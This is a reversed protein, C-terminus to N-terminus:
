ALVPVGKQLVDTQFIHTIGRNFAPNVTQGVIIAKLSTSLWWASPLTTDTTYTTKSEASRTWRLCTCCGLHWRSQWARMYQMPAKFFNAGWGQRAVHVEFMLGCVM